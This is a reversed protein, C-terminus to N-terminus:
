SLFSGQEIGEEHPDIFEPEDDFPSNVRTSVPYTLMEGAPYPLLLPTLRDAKQMKPDIWLDYDGPQIIVPMRDHIPRVLPNADTTIISCTEIYSGDAGEWHEWLGALAFAKESKLRFYYPQRARGKGKWEYFGDAVVLCRRYKFATRFAPKEAVSEARANILRAGIAPDEAWSPILGWQLLALERALHGPRIRVVAVPQTPAVNYRPLLPPVSDVLFQEALAKPPVTLTFRGCM